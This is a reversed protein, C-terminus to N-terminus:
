PILLARAGRTTFFLNASAASLTVKLAVVTDATFTQGALTLVSENNWNGAGFSDWPSSTAAPSTWAYITTGSRQLRVQFMVTRPGVGDTWSSNGVTGISNAGWYLKQIITKAGTGTTNQGTATFFVDIIGGDGWTNAAVTFSIVSTESASNSVSAVTPNYRYVIDQFTPDASAGNSALIQGATGASTATPASSGAGIVVGHSTLSPLTATARAVEVWNTGDYRLLISKKASDMAYDGGYLTVNGVSDKLTVVRAPNAAYLTLLHGAAVGSGASITSLDDSAAAAETDVAHLSKTATVADSAITLTSSGLRVRTMGNILDQEIATIEDQLDNVHAGQVTNGSAKTTFSKVATPFSAASRLVVEFNVLGWLVTLAAAISLWRRHKSAM